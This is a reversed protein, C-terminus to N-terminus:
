GDLVNIIVGTAPKPFIYISRDPMVEGSLAVERIQEAKVPNMVFLCSAEHNKVANVGKSSRKTYQVYDDYKEESINFIDELILKNFVTVDLACYASSKDPHLAKVLNKNTLTLRYFYEGGCYVAFKTEMRVTAIQKKM